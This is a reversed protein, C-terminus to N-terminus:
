LKIVSRICNTVLLVYNAYFLPNPTPGVLDSYPNCIESFCLPVPSWSTLAICLPGSTHREKRYDTMRVRCEETMAGQGRTVM